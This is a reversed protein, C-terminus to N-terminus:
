HVRSGTRGPAPNNFFDRSSPFGGDNRSLAPIVVTAPESRHPLDFGISSHPNSRTPLAKEVAGAPGAERDVEGRVFLDDLAARVSRESRQCRYNVATDIVNCGGRVAAVCM